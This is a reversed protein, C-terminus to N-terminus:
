QGDNRRAVGLAALFNEIARGRCACACDQSRVGDHGIHPRIDIDGVADPFKANEVLQGIDHEHATRDDLMASLIRDLGGLKSLRHQVTRMDPIKVIDVRREIGRPAGSSTSFIPWRAIRIPSRMFSAAARLAIPSAAKRM